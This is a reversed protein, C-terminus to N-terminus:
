LGQRASRGRGEIAMHGLKRPGESRQAADRRRAERLGRYLAFAGAAAFRDHMLHLRRTRHVGGGSARDRSAVNGRAALAPRPVGRNRASPHPKTKREYRPVVFLCFFAPCFIYSSVTERIKRDRM